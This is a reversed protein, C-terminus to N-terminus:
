IRGYFLVLGGSRGDSEWIIMEYFSLKRKMKEVRAKSM